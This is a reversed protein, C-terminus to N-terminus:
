FGTEGTEQARSFADALEESSPAADEALPPPPPILTRPVEEAAAAPPEMAFASDPPPTPEDRLALSDPRAPIEPPIWPASPLPDPIREVERPVAEEDRSARDILALGILAGVIAVAADGDNDDRDRRERRERRESRDDLLQRLLDIEAGDWDALRLVDPYGSGESRVPLPQVALSLAALLAPLLTKM